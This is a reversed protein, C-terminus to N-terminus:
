EDNNNSRRQFACKSGRLGSAVLLALASWLAAGKAVPQRQSPATWDLPGLGFLFPLRGAYVRGARRVQLPLAAFTGCRGRPRRPRSCQDTSVLMYLLVYLCLCASVTMYLCIHTEYWTMHLQIDHQFVLLYLCFSSSCWIMHAHICYWIQKWMCDSVVLYLCIYSVLLNM